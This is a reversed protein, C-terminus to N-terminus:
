IKFNDATWEEVEKLRLYGDKDEDFKSFIVDVQAKDMKGSKLFDERSVRGDKDSDLSDILTAMIAKIPLADNFESRIWARVEKRELHGDKNKDFKAFLADIEDNSLKQKNIKMFEEKSIKGDNDLDM